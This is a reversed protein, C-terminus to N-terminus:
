SLMDWLKQLLIEDNKFTKNYNKMIFQQSKLLKNDFSPMKKDLFKMEKM